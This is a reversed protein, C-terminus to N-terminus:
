IDIKKNKLLPELMKNLQKILAQKEKQSIVKFGDDLTLAYENEGRPIIEVKGYENDEVKITLTVGILQVRKM